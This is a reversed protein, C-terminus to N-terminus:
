AISSVRTKEAFLGTHGKRQEDVFLPQRVVRDPKSFAVDKMQKSPIIRPSALVGLSGTVFLMTESLVGKLEAAAEHKAGTVRINVRM